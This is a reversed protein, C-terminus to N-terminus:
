LTKITSILLVLTNGWKNAVSKADNRGALDNNSENDILGM